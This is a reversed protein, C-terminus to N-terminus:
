RESLKRAAARVGYLARSVRGARLADWATRAAPLDVAVLVDATEISRRAEESREVARRFVRSPDAPGFSAILRGIPSRAAMRSLASAPATVLMRDLIGPNTRDLRISHTVGSLPESPELLSILSVSATPAGEPTLLVDLPTQRAISGLLASPDADSGVLLVISPASNV